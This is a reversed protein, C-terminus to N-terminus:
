RLAAFWADLMAAEEAMRATRAAAEADVGWQEEQFAEDIRSAAFAEAGSLRGRALALALVASGFLGTALSLAALGFDDLALALAAAREATGERQPQHGIGATRVLPLDLAQRAWDLLPAWAATQRAVLGAPREAFYCILDFAAYEALGEAVAQRAAPVADIATYALRTAHMAPLDIVEGQAAWEAAVLRALAENPLVLPAAKPTRPKRGDLLVAWGGNAAPAVAAAKYFRKPKLFPDTGDSSSM